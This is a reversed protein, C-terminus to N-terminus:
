LMQLFEVTEGGPGLVNFFRVGRDWFPLFRIERDMIELGLAKAEAFAAEVDEVGLCVHDWAGPRCAASESEYAELVVGGHRLFAVKGEKAGPQTRWAVAFGLAEYFAVTKELDPTPLGLHNLGQINEAIQM